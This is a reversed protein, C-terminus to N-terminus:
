TSAERADRKTARARVRRWRFDCRDAGRGLTGSREWALSPPLAEFLIDDAQCFCATLEPAGYAFFEDRYLCRRMDFGFVDADEVTESEWGSPPFAVRGVLDSLARVVGLPNPAFRLLPVLRRVPRLSGKVLEGVQEVAEDGSHGNDRLTQYLAVAPLVLHEVHYRLVRDSIEPRDGRLAEYRRQILHGLRRAESEGWQAAAMRQWRELHPMRGSSARRRAVAIVLVSAVVAVGLAVGKRRNILM